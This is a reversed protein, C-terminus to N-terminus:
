TRYHEATGTQQGMSAASRGLGRLPKKQFAEPLADIIDSAILSMQGLRKAALDGALGHFYTGAIAADILTMGQGILAAIAGTLVDGSGGTAMGPNGTNNAYVFEGDTVISGAGKLVVVPRPAGPDSHARMAQATRIAHGERDTQIQGATMQLMRALEGPHPTIVTRAHDSQQWGKSGQRAPQPAINLADADVVAPIGLQRFADILEWFQVGYAAL